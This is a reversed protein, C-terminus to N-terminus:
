RRPGTRRHHLKRTAAAWIQVGDNTGFGVTKGDPGFAVRRSWSRKGGDLAAIKEGTEANWLRLPGDQYTDIALLKGDPSVALHRAWHDNKWLEVVSKVDFCRLSRNDVAAYLREGDPSFALANVYSPLEALLKSQGGAVPFLRVRGVGLGGGKTEYESTALTLGDPSFAAVLMGCEDNAAVTRKREGTLADYLGVGESDLAAVSRRDPSFWCEAGTPAKLEVEGLLRGTETDWRGIPM